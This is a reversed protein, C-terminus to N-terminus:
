AGCLTWEAKEKIQYFSMLGNSNGEPWYQRLFDAIWSGTTKAINRYFMASLIQRGARALDKTFVTEPGSLTSKKKEITTEEKEISTEMKHPKEQKWVRRDGDNKYLM